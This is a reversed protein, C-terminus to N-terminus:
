NNSCGVYTYPGVADMGCQYSDEGILQGHPDITGKSWGKAQCIEEALNQNAQTCSYLSVTCFESEAKVACSTTYDAAHLNTSFILALILSM